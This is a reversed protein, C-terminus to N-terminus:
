NHKKDKKLGFVALGMLALGSVVFIITGIGGTHPISPRKNNNVPQDAAPTLQTAQPDQYYSNNTVVFEVPESPIVYGEPAKTEKLYYKSEGTGTHTIMGGAEKTTKADYKLGKIEFQGQADSILVVADGIKPNKFKSAAIADQNADILDQTWTIKESLAKDAYLEFEADKLVKDAAPDKKVFKKGGTYVWVEPTEPTDKPDKNVDKNNKFTIKTKNAVPKGMVATKNIRAKFKVQIFPADDTNSKADDLDKQTAYKDRKDLAVGAAIKQIGADTLKVSLKRDIVTVTYDTENTLTGTAGFQVSEVPNTVPTTAGDGSLYDLQSDLEDTFEYQGYDQINTPISGKLFFDVVDGVKYGSEDTGLEKVDKGPKPEDGTVNKPYVHVKTLFGSGDSKSMPFKIRFPVAFAASVTDPASKEIVWYGHEGNYDDKNKVWLTKGQADTAQLDEHETYLADLEAETKGQLEADNKDDTIKYARFIVGSLPEVDTGIKAKGAETLEGGNPNELLTKFEKMKLKHINVETKAPITQSVDTNDSYDGTEATAVGNEEAVVSTVPSLPYALPAVVGGLLAALVGLQILQKQKRM